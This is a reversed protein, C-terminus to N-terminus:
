LYGYICISFPWVHCHHIAMIAMSIAIFLPWSHCYDHGSHCYYPVLLPGYMAFSLPGYIAIIIAVRAIIIAIMIAM